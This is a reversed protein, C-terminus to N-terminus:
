VKRTVFRQVRWYVSLRVIPKASPWPKTLFSEPCRCFRRRAPRRFAYCGQGPSSKFVSFSQQHGVSYGINLFALENWSNEIKAAIAVQGLVAIGEQRQRGEGVTPM